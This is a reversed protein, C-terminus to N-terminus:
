IKVPSCNNEYIGHSPISHSPISTHIIIQSSIMIIKPSIIHIVNQMFIAIKELSKLHRNHKNLDMNSISYTVVEINYYLKNHIIQYIYTNVESHEYNM